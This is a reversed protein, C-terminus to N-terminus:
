KIRSEPARRSIFLIARHCVLLMRLRGFRLGVTWDLCFYFGPMENSLSMATTSGIIGFTKHISSWGTVDVSGAFSDAEGKM